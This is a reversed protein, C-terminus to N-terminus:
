DGNNEKNLTKLYEKTNPVRQNPLMANQKLSFLLTINLRRKFREVRFRGVVFARRSQVVFDSNSYPEQEKLGYNNLVGNM